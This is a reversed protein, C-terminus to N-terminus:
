HSHLIYVAATRVDRLRRGVLDCREMCRVHRQTATNIGDTSATPRHTAINHRQRCSLCGTGRGTRLVNLRVILRRWVALASRPVGLTTNWDDTSSLTLLSRLRAICTRACASQQLRCRTSNTLKRIVNSDDFQLCCSTMVTFSRRPLGTLTLTSIACLSHTFQQMVHICFQRYYQGIVTYSPM